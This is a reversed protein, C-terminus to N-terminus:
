AALEFADPERDCAERWQQRRRERWCMSCRMSISRPTPASAQRCRRSGARLQREIKPWGRRRDRAAASGPSQDGLLRHAARRLGTADIAMWAAEVADATSSKRSSRERERRVPHWARRRVHGRRFAPRCPLISLADLLEAPLSREAEDRLSRTASLRYARYAAVCRARSQRASRMPWLKWRSARGNAGQRCAMGM